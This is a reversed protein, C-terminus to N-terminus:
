LGCKFGNGFIQRQQQDAETERTPAVGLGRRGAAIDFFEFNGLAIGIAIELPFESAVAGCKPRIAQHIDAVSAGLKVRAVFDAEDKGCGEANQVAGILAGRRIGRDSEVAFVHGQGAHAAFPVATIGGNEDAMIDLHNNVVIREKCRGRGFWSVM